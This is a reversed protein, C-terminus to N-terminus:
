GAKYENLLEKIIKGRKFFWKGPAWSLVPIGDCKLIKDIVERIPLGDKIREEITLGLVELKEKTIIQRGAFVLMEESQKKIKLVQSDKLKEVKIDYQIDGNLNKLKNFEDCDHREALFIAMISKDSSAKHKSFNKFCNEIILKLNHFPYIHLHCDAILKM